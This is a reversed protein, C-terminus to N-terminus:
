ASVRDAIARAMSTIESPIMIITTSNHEAGVETIM